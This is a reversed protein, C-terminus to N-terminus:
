EDTLVEKTTLAIGIEDEFLGDVEGVVELINMDILKKFFRLESKPTFGFIKYNVGSDEYEQKRLLDYFNITNLIIHEKTAWPFWYAHQIHLIRGRSWFFIVGVPVEIGQETFGFFTVSALNNENVFVRFLTEFEEETLEEPEGFDKDFSGKLYARHYALMDGKSTPRFRVKKIANEYFSLTKRKPKSM